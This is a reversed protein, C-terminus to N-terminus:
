VSFVVTEPVSGEFQVSAFNNKAVSLWRLSEFANDEIVLNGWFRNKSLNVRMLTPPINRVILDGRLMNDSIELKRMRQPMNQLNITGTIVNKNLVLTYLSDPLTCLDITGGIDNESLNLDQLKWPLEATSISGTLHNGVITMETMSPPFAAARFLGEIGSDYLSIAGVTEPLWQFDVEGAYLDVRSPRAIVIVDGNGNLTIGPWDAIDKFSGDDTCVASKDRSNQVLLEMRAQQTLLSPDFRGIHHADSALCILKIYNM